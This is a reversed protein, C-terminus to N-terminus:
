SKMFKSILEYPLSSLVILPRILRDYLKSARKTGGFPNLVFLVPKRINRKISIRELGNLEIFIQHIQDNVALLTLLIYKGGDKQFQVLEITKLLIKYNGKGTSDVPKDFYHYSLLVNSSIERGNWEIDTSFNIYKKFNNKLSMINFIFCIM